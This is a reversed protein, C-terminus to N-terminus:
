GKHDVPDHVVEQAPLDPYWDVNQSWDGFHLDIQTGLLGYCLVESDEIECVPSPCEHIHM